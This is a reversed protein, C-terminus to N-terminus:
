LLAEPYTEEIEIKLKTLDLIESNYQRLEPQIVLINEKSEKLIKLEDIITKSRNKILKLITKANQTTM